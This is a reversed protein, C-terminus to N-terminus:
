LKCPATNWSLIFITARRVKWEHAVSGVLQIRYMDVLNSDICTWSDFCVGCEDDVLTLFGNVKKCVHVIDLVLLEIM